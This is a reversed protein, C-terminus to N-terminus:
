DRRRPHGGVAHHDARPGAARLARVAGVIGFATACRRRSSAGRADDRRVLTFRPLPLHYSAAMQGKGTIIDLSFDEMAPYLIEEVTRPLRHVEDIFLVDGPNLNTLIAALTAPASSPRARVHHASPRRIRERHHGRADDQRLGPPGYLLVHDLTRRAAQPGGPHLGVYEGQSKGPRHLRFATEPAAPKRGGRRRAYIGPRGHPTELDFDEETYEPM